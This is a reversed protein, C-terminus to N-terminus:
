SLRLDPRLHTLLQGAQVTLGLENLDLVTEVPDAFPLRGSDDSKFLPDKRPLLHVNLTVSRNAAYSHKLAPDIQKV